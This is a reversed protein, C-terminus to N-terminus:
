CYFWSSLLFNEMFALLLLSSALFFFFFSGQHGLLLRGTLACSLPSESNSGQTLLGGRSSLM